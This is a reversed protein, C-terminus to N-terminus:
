SRPHKCDRMWGKKRTLIRPRCCPIMGKATDREIDRALMWERSPLPIPPGDATKRYFSATSGAQPAPASSPPVPLPATTVATSSHALWWAAPRPATTAVTSSPALSSAAVPAVAVRDRETASELAATSPGNTTSSLANAADAAVATAAISDVRSAREAPSVYLAPVPEVIGRRVLNEYQAPHTQKHFDGCYRRGDDPESEESWDYYRPEGADQYNRNIEDILYLRHHGVDPEGLREQRAQTSNRSGFNYGYHSFMDVNFGKASSMVRELRGFCNEPFNTGEQSFSLALGKRDKVPEGNQQLKPLM